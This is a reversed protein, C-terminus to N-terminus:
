NIPRCTVQESQGRIIRGREESRIGELERDDKGTAERKVAVQGQCMLDSNPGRSVLNGKASSHKNFLM